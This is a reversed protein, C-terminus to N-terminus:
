AAAKGAHPSSPAALRDRLRLARREVVAYLLAAVALAAANYVTFALLDSQELLPGFSNQMWHYVQKHTLYLSFSLTALARAGPVACRGIWTRPSLAGLLVCALSAALLPFGVIVGALSVPEILMCAAIGTVGAVLWAWGWEMLRAWWRPRFAKIAALLVGALLGDLRAYTPNYIAEVYRLLFDDKGSSPHLYPAVEYQWLWGRLLMGGVLVAAAALVVRRCSPRRALLWAAAPLLLYFHEEVCLSWAHAYARNHSYDAFLNTTFTLFQWLPAMGDSERVAPVAVYLALVTLYAPLVRLARRLMFQRWNPQQASAYPELLQAGILYGSLVFFLDVGIWGHRVVAGFPLGYSDLHYLMVWGIAVARLLDLGPLRSTM